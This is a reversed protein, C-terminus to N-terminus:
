NHLIFAYLRFNEMKIMKFETVNIVSAISHLGDGSNIKFHGKLLTEDKSVSVRYGNLLM